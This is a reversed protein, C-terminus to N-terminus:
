RLVAEVVWDGQITQEGVIAQYRKLVIPVKAKGTSRFKVSTLVNKSVHVFEAENQQKEVQKRRDPRKFFDFVTALQQQKEELVKTAENIASKTEKLENDLVVLPSNEEDTYLIAKEYL